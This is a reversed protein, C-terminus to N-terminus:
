LGRKKFFIQHHGRDENDSKFLIFSIMLLIIAQFLSSIDFGVNNYLAYKNAYTTIAALFLSSPIMLLPNAKALLATSFAAWGLGAYFGSHCTFYTGIIALAGSLGHMGGSIFASSFIFSSNSYGAFKSFEPSIGYIQLRRGYSTKNILFFFLICLLIAIFFSINFQSYKLIPPFRFKEEIFQTALLNNTKSRFPGSILGDILPIIASSALFSTFLFDANKYLKLFGSILSVLGSCLFSFLIALFLAPVTPWSSCKALFIGTIFGGLYIQGEGGFNLNGSKISFAAGTGAIMYLSSLNLAQGLYFLNM